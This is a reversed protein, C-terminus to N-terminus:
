QCRDELAFVSEGRLQIGGLLNGWCLLCSRPGALAIHLRLQQVRFSSTNGDVEYDDVIEPTIEFNTADLGAAQIGACAAKKAAIEVSDPTRSADSADYPRILLNSAPSNCALGSAPVTDRRCPVPAEGANTNRASRAHSAAVRAADRAVLSLTNSERILQGYDLLAAVIFALIPLILAFEIMGVGSDNRVCRSFQTAVKTRDPM